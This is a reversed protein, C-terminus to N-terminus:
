SEKRPTLLTYAGREGVRLNKIGAKIEKGAKFYITYKPKTWYVGDEYLHESMSCKKSPHYKVKFEGLEPVLVRHGRSLYIVMVAVFANYGIRMDEETTDAIVAMDHIFDVKRINEHIIPDYELDETMPIAM